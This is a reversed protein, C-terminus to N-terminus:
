QARYNVDSVCNRNRRAFKNVEYFRCGLRPADIWPETALSPITDGIEASAKRNGTKRDRFLDTM